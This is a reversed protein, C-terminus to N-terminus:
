PFRGNRSNLQESLLPPLDFGTKQSLRVRRSAESDVDSRAAAPEESRLQAVAVASSSTSPSPSISVTAPLSVPHCLLPRPPLTTPFLEPPHTHPLSSSSSFSHSVPFPISLAKQGERSHLADSHDLCPSTLPPSDPLLLPPAQKHSFINKRLHSTDVGGDTLMCTVHSHKCTIEM